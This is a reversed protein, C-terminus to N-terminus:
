IIHEIQHPPREHYIIKPKGHKSSTKLKMQHGNIIYPKQKRMNLPHILDSTTAM